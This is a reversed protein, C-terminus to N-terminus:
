DNAPEANDDHLKLADGKIRAPCSKYHGFIVASHDCSCPAPLQSIAERLQRIYKGRINCDATLTKCAAVQNIRVTEAADSYAKVRAKQHDVDRRLGTMQEIMGDREDMLSVNRSRLSDNVEEVHKCRTMWEELESALTRAIQADVIRCGEPM